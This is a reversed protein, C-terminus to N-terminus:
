ASVGVLAIMGIEVLVTSCTASHSRTSGIGNSSASNSVNSSIGTNTNPRSSSMSSTCTANSISSSLYTM